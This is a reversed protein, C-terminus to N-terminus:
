DTFCRSKGDSLPSQEKELTILKKKIKKAKRLDQCNYTDPFHSIKDAELYKDRMNQIRSILNTDTM